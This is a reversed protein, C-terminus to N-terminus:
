ARKSVPSSILRLFFNAKMVQIPGLTEGSFFALTLVSLANTFAIQKTLQCNESLM